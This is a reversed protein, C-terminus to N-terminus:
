ENISIEEIQWAADRLEGFNMEDCIQKEMLERAHEESDAEVEVEVWGDVMAQAYYTM